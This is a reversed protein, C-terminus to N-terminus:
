DSLCVSRRELRYWIPFVAMDVAGLGIGDGSLIKAISRSRAIRDAKTDSLARPRRRSNDGLLACVGSDCWANAWNCISQGNVGLQEAIVKPKVKRGLQLLGAARTRTDRHECNISTKKL